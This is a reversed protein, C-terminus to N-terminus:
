SSTHLLSETKLTLDSLLISTQSVIHILWSQSKRSRQLDQISGLNLVVDDFVMGLLGAKWCIMETIDAM